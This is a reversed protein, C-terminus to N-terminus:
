SASMAVLMQYMGIDNIYMNDHEKIAFNKDLHNNKCTSLDKAHTIIVNNPGM